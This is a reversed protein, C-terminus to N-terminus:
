LPGHIYHGFHQNVITGKIARGKLFRRALNVMKGSKNADDGSLDIVERTSIKNTTIQTLDFNDGWIYGNAERIKPRGFIVKKHFERQNPM